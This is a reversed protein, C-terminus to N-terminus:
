KIFILAISGLIAYGICIYWKQPFNLDVDKTREKKIGLNFLLNHVAWERCLSFTSRQWILLEPHRAEISDLASKFKRKQIECSDNIHLNNPTYGYEYVKGNLIFIDSEM